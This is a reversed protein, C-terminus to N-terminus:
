FTTKCVKVPSSDNTSFRHAGIAKKQINWTRAVNDEQHFTLINDWDKARIECSAFDVVSPFRLEEVSIQLKRSKKILSGQSLETNQADRIMSFLRLSKDRGASLLIKGDSSYHQIRHPSKFHGVRSKLLRPVGDLSDFIWIKLSNDTSATILLPQNPYFYCSHITGDHANRELHFLRRSELDWLALDGQSNSSAM